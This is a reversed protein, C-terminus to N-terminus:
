APILEGAGPVLHANMTAVHIVAPGNTQGLLALLMAMNCNPNIQQPDDKLGADGKIFTIVSPGDPSDILVHGAKFTALTKVVDGVTDNENVVLCAVPGEVLGARKRFEPTRVLRSLLKTLLLRRDQETAM